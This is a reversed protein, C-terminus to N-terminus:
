NSKNRVLKRQKKILVDVKQRWGRIKRYKHLDKRYKKSHRVTYKARLMRREGKGQEETKEEWIERRNIREAM